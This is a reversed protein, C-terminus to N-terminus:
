QDMRLMNDISPVGFVADPSEALALRMEPTLTPTRWGAIERWENSGDAYVELFFSLQNGALPQHDTAFPFLLTQKVTEKPLVFVPSWPRKTAGQLNLNEYGSLEDAVLVFQTSSSGPSAGEIRIRVGRLKGVRAGANAITLPVILQVGFKSDFRSIRLQLSGVAVLIQFPALLTRWLTLAAVTLSGLSIIAAVISIVLSQEAMKDEIFRRHDIGDTRNAIIARGKREAEIEALRL